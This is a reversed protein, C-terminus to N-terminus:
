FEVTKQKTKPNNKKNQKSYVSSKLGFSSHQVSILFFSSVRATIKGREAEVGKSSGTSKFGGVKWSERTYNTKGGRGFKMM